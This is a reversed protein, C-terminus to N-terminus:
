GTRRVLEDWYIIRENLKAFRRYILVTIVASYIGGFAILLFMQMNWEVAVGFLVMGLLVLSRGVWTGLLTFIFPVVYNDKYLRKATVGALFGVLAMVVANLGILRGLLLDRVLGAIFGLLAGEARGNLIGLNVVLVTILDPYAGWVPLVSFLTTQLLMALLFLVIM